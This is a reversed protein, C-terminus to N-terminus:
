MTGSEMGFIMVSAGRDVFLLSRPIVGLDSECWLTQMQMTQGDLRLLQVTGHQSSAAILRSHPEIALAEM